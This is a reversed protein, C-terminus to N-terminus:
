PKLGLERRVFAEVTPWAEQLHQFAHNGGDFICFQANESDQYKRQAFDVPVVEDQSDQLILCELTSINTIEYAMLETLYATNLEFHEQTVPNEHMGLHPQLVSVPDLAPNIVVMPIQYKDAFYQGYFGGMSSGVLCWDPPANHGIKPIIETQIVTEILQITQDPSVIPYTPAFFPLGMKSFAKQFWQAKYSNASSLFGHLYLIM